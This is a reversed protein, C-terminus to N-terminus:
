FWNMWYVKYRHFKIRRYIDQNRIECKGVDIPTFPYSFQLYILICLQGDYWCQWSHTITFFEFKQTYYTVKNQKDDLHRIKHDIMDVSESSNM